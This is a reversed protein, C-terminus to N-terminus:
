PRPWSTSARSCRAGPRRTSSSSSRCPDREERVRSHRPHRGRAPHPIRQRRDQGRLGLVERVPDQRRGERRAPDEQRRRQGQRQRRRDVKGEQPKEKATDPIIIGGQKVEKEELREVLIRDHLPRIKMSTEAEKISTPQRQARGNQLPPSSRGGAARYATLVGAFRTSIYGRRRLPDLPFDPFPDFPWFCKSKSTKGSSAQAIM